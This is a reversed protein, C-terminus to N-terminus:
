ALMFFDFFHDDFPRGTSNFCECIQFGPKVVGYGLFLFWLLNSLPYLWFWFEYFYFQEFLTTM